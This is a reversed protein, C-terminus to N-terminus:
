MSVWSIVTTEQTHHTKLESMWYPSPWWIACYCRPKILTWYFSGIQLKRLLSESIQVSQTAIAVAVEWILAKMYLMVSPVYYALLLKRVNATLDTRANNRLSTHSASLECQTHTSPTHKATPYSCSLWLPHLHLCAEGYQAAWVRVHHHYNSTLDCDNSHVASNTWLCLKM